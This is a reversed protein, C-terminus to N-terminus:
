NPYLANLADDILAEIVSALSPSKERVLRIKGSASVDSKTLCEVSPATYLQSTKSTTSAAPRRWPLLRM